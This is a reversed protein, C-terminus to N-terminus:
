TTETGTIEEPPKAPDQLRWALCAVGVLVCALYVWAYEQLQGVLTAEDGRSGWALILTLGVSVGVVEKATTVWAQGM